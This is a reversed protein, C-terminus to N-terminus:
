SAEPESARLEEMDRILREIDSKKPNDARSFLFGSTLFTLVSAIPILILITATPWELGDIGVIEGITKGRQNFVTYVVMPIFTVHVSVIALWRNFRTVERLKQRVSRLYDYCSSGFDVNKLGAIQRLGIAFFVLCPVAGVIGWLVSNDNDLFINFFFLGLALPLLCWVGIQFKRLTQAVLNASKRSYLENIKPISLHEGDVFGTEWISEISRESNV